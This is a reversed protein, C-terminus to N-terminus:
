EEDDYNRWVKKIGKEENAKLEKKMLYFEYQLYKIVAAIAAILGVVLLIITWRVGSDLRRDLMFGLFPGAFLPIAIEWGITSARLDHGTFLRRKRLSPNSETGTLREDLYEPGRKDTM